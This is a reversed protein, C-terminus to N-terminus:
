SKIYTEFLGKRQELQMKVTYVVKYLYFCLQRLGAWYARFIYTGMKQKLKSEEILMFLVM